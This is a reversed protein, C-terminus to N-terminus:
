FALWMGGLVVLVFIIAMIPWIWYSFVEIQEAKPGESGYTNLPKDEACSAALLTLGLLPLATRAISRKITM